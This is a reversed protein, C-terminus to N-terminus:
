LECVHPVVTSNLKSCVCHTFHWEEQMAVRFSFCGGIGVKSRVVLSNQIYSFNLALNLTKCLYISAKGSKAHVLHSFVFM